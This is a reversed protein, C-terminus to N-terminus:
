YACVNYLALFLPVSDISLRSIIGLSVLNNAWAELSLSTLYKTVDSVFDAAAILVMESMLLTVNKWKSM